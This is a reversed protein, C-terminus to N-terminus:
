QLVYFSCKQNAKEMEWKGNKKKRKEKRKKEKGRKKEKRKGKKKQKSAVLRPPQLTSKPKMEM